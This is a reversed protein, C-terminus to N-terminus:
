KNKRAIALVILLVSVIVGIAIMVFNSGFTVSGIEGGRALIVLAFILGGVLALIGFILAVLKGEGIGVSTRYADIGLMSDSGRMDTRRKFRVRNNDFKEVMEWGAQAEERIVKQLNEPKKFYATSSRMIKFEWGNLDDGTYNTMSEEEKRMKAAAAAAAIAVSSGVTSIYAGSM